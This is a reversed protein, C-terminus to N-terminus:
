QGIDGGDGGFLTDNGELGKLTDSGSAGYLTDDSSTGDLTDNGATGVKVITHIPFESASSGIGLNVPKNKIVATAPIETLAIKTNELQLYDASFNTLFSANKM